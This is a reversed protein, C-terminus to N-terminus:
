LQINRFLQRKELLTLRHERQHFQLAELLKKPSKCNNDLPSQVNIDM